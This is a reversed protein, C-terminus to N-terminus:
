DLATLEPDIFALMERLYREIESARKESLITYKVNKLKEEDLRSLLHRILPARSPILSLEKFGLSLLALAGEATGAMEGCITVPKGLSETKLVIEHLTRMVSPHFTSYLHGVLNSNRDVALMYQILDNTGVSVFDITDKFDVLQYLLAPVEMMIGLPPIDSYPLGIEDSIEEILERATEVEWFHTVLPLLIKFRHGELAALLIAKLQDRFLDLHEMSFRIARLGLLPNEQFPFKYYPLPKDSGVDLTRITVYGPFNKAIRTYVEIQEEASPWREYLTFAFETRFLGVNRIGHQRAVEIDIPLGINATIEAQVATELSAASEREIVKLLNAKKRYTNEYEEELKKDPDVFVFGTSGDVLVREGQRFLRVANEIGYVAPIGLSRALITMHSTEGGRETVIAKVKGKLLTALFSPGIETAVVVVGDKPKPNIERVAGREHLLHALIKEGIDRVDQARERLYTDELGDFHSAISEIAEVVSAEASSNKTEIIDIITDELNPSRLMLLHSEFIKVEDESIEGRERLRQILLALDREVADLAEHLRRKEITSGRSELEELPFDQFLGRLLYVEGVAYGGSVGRGQFVSGETRPATTPAAPKLRELRDAVELLGALRSAIIEFITKEAPNIHRRETTQGVLVGMCQNHLTIPVGLYSEYAKEGSEPFYKYAPHHSAPMVLMPRHTQYVMGTLGEGSRLKIPNEPDLRLGKTARMVLVKQDEDWLYISVVDFHLSEAIKQVVGRLITDLGSSRNVLESIEQVVKLHFDAREVAKSSM